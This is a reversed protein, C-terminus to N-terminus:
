SSLCIGCIGLIDIQIIFLWWEKGGDINLGEMIELIDQWGPVSTMPPQYKIAKAMFGNAWRKALSREADM